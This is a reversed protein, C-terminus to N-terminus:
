SANNTQIFDLIKFPSKGSFLIAIINNLFPVDLPHKKLIKQLTKATEVGEVTKNNLELAKKMGFENIQQGFSFNRSKTSSCTLFIDGIGSFSLAVKVNDPNPHLFDLVKLIEQTGITLMASHTNVSQYKASVMGMGIALVNKLAAFLEAGKINQEPELRFYANNFARQLERNYMHNEGVVNIITAEENFVEVAFSPGIFTALNKLNKKFKKAIFESFLTESNPELGKSLNILDVKKYKLEKQLQKLVSKVLKSPVGLVYTNSNSVLESLSDTAYINEPNNFARSNFYKTNYGRKIDEIEKQDVGYLIVDYGNKSLVNALASSWAGTGIFGFKRKKSM